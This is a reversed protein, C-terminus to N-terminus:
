YAYAIGTGASLSAGRMAALTREDAFVDLGSLAAGVELELMLDRVQYQRARARMAAAVSSVLAPVRVPRALRSCALHAPFPRCRCSYTVM